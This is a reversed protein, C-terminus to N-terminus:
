IEHSTVESTRFARARLADSLGHWCVRGTLSLTMLEIALVARVACVRKVKSIKRKANERTTGEFLCQPFREEGAM